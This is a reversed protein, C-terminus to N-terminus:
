PSVAGAEGVEVESVTVASESGDGVAVFAESGPAVARGEGVPVGRTSGVAVGMAPVVAQSAAVERERRCAPIFAVIRRRKFKREDGPIRSM